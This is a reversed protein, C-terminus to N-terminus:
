WGLGRKPSLLVSVGGAVMRHAGIRHRLRLCLVWPAWFYKQHETTSKSLVLMEVGMLLKQVQLGVTDLRGDRTSRVRVPDRIYPGRISSRLLILRSLVSRHLTEESAWDLVWTM